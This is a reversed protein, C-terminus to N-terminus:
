ADKFETKKWGVLSTPATSSGETHKGDWNKNVDLSGPWGSYTRGVHVHLIDKVPIDHSIGVEDEGTGEIHKHKGPDKVAVVYANHTGTPKYQPPTFANAYSQSQSPSKSYYTLGEQGELNFDGKSKIKGTKKVNQFEEHSMGRYLVGDKKEDQIEKHYGSDPKLSVSQRPYEDKPDTKDLTSIEPDHWHKEDRGKRYTFEVAGKPKKPTATYLIRDNEDKSTIDYRGSDHMDKIRGVMDKKNLEESIIRLYAKKISENMYINKKNNTYKLLVLLLSKM